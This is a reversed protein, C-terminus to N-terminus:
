EGVHSSLVGSSESSSSSKPPSYYRKVRLRMPLIYYYEGTERTPVPSNKTVGLVPSKKIKARSFLLYYVALNYFTFIFSNVAIDCSSFSDYM